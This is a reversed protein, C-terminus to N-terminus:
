PRPRSLDGTQRVRLELKDLSLAYNGLAIVKFNYTLERARPLAIKFPVELFGRGVETEPDYVNVFRRYHIGRGINLQILLLPGERAAAEPKVFLRGDLVEGPKLGIKKQVLAGASGPAARVAFGNSAAPDFLPRGVERDLKEAEYLGSDVEEPVAASEVEYLDFWSLWLRYRARFRARKMEEPFAEWYLQAEKNFDALFLYKVKMVDLFDPIRWNAFGPYWVHAVNRNEMSIAPAELGSFVSGPFAKGLDRSILKMDYTANKVWGCYEVINQVAYIGVAVAVVPVALRKPIAIGKGGLVRRIAVLAAGFGAGTLGTLILLCAYPREIVDADTFIVPAFSTVAAWLLLFLAAQFLWRYRPEFEVRGGSLARKLFLSALVVMPVTMEIYHRTPRYSIVSNGVVGVVFWLSCAVELATVPRGGKKNFVRLLLWFFYLFLLLSFLRNTGYFTFSPKLLWSQVLNVPTRPFMAAANIGGFDGLFDRAPLYVFVLWPLFVALTGAGFCALRRANLSLSGAEKRLILIGAAALPMVLLLFYVIKGKAMFSLGLSLASPIFWVPKEWAKLFFFLGLVAFLTMPMAQNAVRGYIILPYNLALLLFFLRGEDPFFRRGFFFLVGFLLVSFLAPQLNMQWMGPGLVRFILCTALHGVPSGYMPNFDDVRTRGFLVKNRANAAYSAPDGYDGCSTPSIRVPPDASLHVIRPVFSLLLVLVLPAWFGKRGGDATARESM